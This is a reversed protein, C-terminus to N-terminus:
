RLLRGGKCVLLLWVSLGHEAWKTNGFFKDIAETREEVYLSVSVSSTGFRRELFNDNIDTFDV